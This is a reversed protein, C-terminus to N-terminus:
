TDMSEPGLCHISVYTAVACTEIHIPIHTAVSRPLSFISAYTAVASTDMHISVHYCSSKATHWRHTWVNPVLAFYPCMTPLRAHTWKYPFMLLLQKPLTGAIHGCKRPSPFTRVCIHLWPLTHVCLRCGRLHGHTHLCSYCGSQCHAM